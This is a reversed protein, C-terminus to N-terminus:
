ALHSHVLRGAFASLLHGACLLAGDCVLAHLFGDSQLSRTSADRQLGVRATVLVWLCLVGYLLLMRSRYVRLREVKDDITLHDKRSPHHFLFCAPLAVASLGLGVACIALLRDAHADWSGHVAGLAYVVLALAPSARALLSLWHWRM